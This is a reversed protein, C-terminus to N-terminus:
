EDSTLGGVTKAAETLDQISRLTPLRSQASALLERARASQNGELRVVVPVRFGVKEGAAILSEAILDCRTIGGFINVLVAKVQPESLVIRFAEAAGERSVSGGVDLFNAPSGGHLKILDMTAMALGAGNVICGINGEMAIFTLGAQQAQQELPNEEERDHKALLDPHRYLANDDVTLKADIALLEGSRTVVLPNIEALTADQDLFTKALALIIKRASIQQPKSTLELATVLQAVQFPLLGLHPHLWAKHIKEPTQAAVEEIAMGGATSVMMVPTNKTRDLVIGVYFEREIDVASTILLKHVPVGGPGTQRNVMRHTLMFEAAERAEEPSSVLRVFGAKGRGGAFVQAKVVARPNAPTTIQSYAAVAQPVTTCVSAPPVPVGVTSLIERAQYEHLKM